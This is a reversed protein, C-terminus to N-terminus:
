QQRAAEDGKVVIVEAFAPKKWAAWLEVKVPHVRLSIWPSWTYKFKIIKFSTSMFQMSQSKLSRELHHKVAEVVVSTDWHV